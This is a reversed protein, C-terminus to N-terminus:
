ACAAAALVGTGGDAVDADDAAVVAGVAVAVRQPHQHLFGVSPFVANQQVVLGVVQFLRLALLHVELEATMGVVPLYPGDGPNRVTDVFTGEALM